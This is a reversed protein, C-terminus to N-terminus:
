RLKSKRIKLCLSQFSETWSQSGRNLRAIFLSEVSTMDLYETGLIHVFHQM